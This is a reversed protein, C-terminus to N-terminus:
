FCKYFLNIGHSAECNTRYDRTLFNCHNLTDFVEWQIYPINYQVSINDMNM